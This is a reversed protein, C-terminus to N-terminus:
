NSGVSLPAGRRDSNEWRNYTVHNRYRLSDRVRKRTRTRLKHDCRWQRL